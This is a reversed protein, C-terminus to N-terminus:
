KPSSKKIQLSEFLELLFASLKDDSEPPETHIVPGYISELESFAFNEMARRKIPQLENAFFNATSKGVEDSYWLVTIESWIVHVGAVFGIVRSKYDEDRMLVSYKQARCPNLGLVEAENTANGLDSFSDFLIAIKTNPFEDCVKAALELIGM